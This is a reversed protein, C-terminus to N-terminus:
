KNLEKLLEVIKIRIGYTKPYQVLCDYIVELEQKTLQKKM